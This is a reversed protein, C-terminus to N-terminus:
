FAAEIDAQTKEEDLLFYSIGNIYKPTGSATKTIINSIDLKAVDLVYRIIDDVTINTKTEDLVLSVISKIKFINVPNIMEKAFAKMFEQQTEIRGLDGMAYAVSMDNNHRFRVFGEAQKGNLIQTGAKLDIHLDQTPDDYKMDFPVEVKVGGIEDVLENVLKTDFIVYYDINEGLLEQVENVLPVINEGRYIANIKNGYCYENEVYTDRPISLIFLKGNKVDYKVYMIMDTLNDNVGCILASIYEKKGQVIEKSGDARILHQETINAYLNISCIIIITFILLVILLKLIKGIINSKKRNESM